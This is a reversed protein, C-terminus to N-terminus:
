ADARARTHAEQDSDRHSDDDRQFGDRQFGDRQFGDRKVGDRQVGDRKVGDRQVGDRKFNLIREVVATTSQAPVYDLIRVQGGYAAVVDSEELMEPTYDGGKAYIDPRLREILPIPTDTDFVTVYDVCGLASLLSARDVASNVPRGAGKLRRTSADGNVAVVLVDGLARAQNLYSTHGRHLVDFCGNTLVIRRGSARDARLHQELEDAELVVGNRDLHAALDATSCVSTGSRQVVVDAAAQALDASTALPLGIARALTLAAVYTDGAGSAQKEAAPLAWTRHPPLGARLVVSGDHDLTVVVAEANAARLLEAAHAAFRVQRDTSGPLASVPRAPGPLASDHVAPEPVATAPVATEPVATAPVAPEPVATAPVATEPVATEPVTPRSLEGALMRTAEQANPTVLHPRLAAWKVPDHADIVTLAPRASRTALSEVLSSTLLGSGYDCVVEADADRTAALAADTMATVAERPYEGTFTDDIRVLVQGAGVVRIKTTTSVAGSVHLGTLDVGAAELLAMLKRGADDDGIVGVARVRAGLAALNMATNAAGGPAYGQQQLDVVPAPAERCMRESTGRWWGDLLYDGLVVVVPAAQRIALPVEPSLVVREPVSEPVTEAVTQLRSEPVSEAVTEPATGPVSEAVTEPATEPEAQTV